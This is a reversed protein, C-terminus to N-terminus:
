KVLKVGKRPRVVNSREAIGLRGPTVGVGADVRPGPEGILGFKVQMSGLKRVVGRAGSASNVDELLPANFALAMTFPSMTYSSWGLTWWGWFMPLILLITILEIAAAGAYWRLDSNFIDQKVTQKAQVTQNLSVGKDFIGKELVNPITSNAIGARFMIQNYKLVIEDTPDLFALQDARTAYLDMHQAVFPNFTTFDESFTQGPLKALGVTANANVFM